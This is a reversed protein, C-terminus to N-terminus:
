LKVQQEALLPRARVVVEGDRNPHLRAVSAPDFDVLLLPRVDLADVRRAVDRADERVLDDGCRVFARGRSLRRVVVEITRVLAALRSRASRRCDAVLGGYLRLMGSGACISRSPATAMMRMSRGSFCLAKLRSSEPATMPARSASAASSSTFTTTSVPLPVAKLAPASMVSATAAMSSFPRLSPMACVISRASRKGFGRMAQTFPNAYPPPASRAVTQSMRM